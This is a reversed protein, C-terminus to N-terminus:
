SEGFVCFPAGERNTYGAALVWEALAGPPHGWPRWDHHGQVKLAVHFSREEYQPGLHTRRPHILLGSGTRIVRPHAALM